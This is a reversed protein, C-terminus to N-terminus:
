FPLILCVLTAEDVTRPTEQLFLQFYSTQKPQDTLSRYFVTPKRLFTSMCKCFTVESTSKKLISDRLEGHCCYHIAHCKM